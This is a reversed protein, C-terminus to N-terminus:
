SLFPNVEDQLKQLKLQVAFCMTTQTKLSKKGEEILTKYTKVGLLWLSCFVQETNCQSRWSIRVVSIVIIASVVNVM